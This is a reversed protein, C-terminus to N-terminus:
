SYGWQTLLPVTLMKLLGKLNPIFTRRLSSVSKDRGCRRQPDVGEEKGTTPTSLQIWHFNTNSDPADVERWRWGSSNQGKPSKWFGRFHLFLPDPIGPLSLFFPPGLPPGQVEPGLGPVVVGRVQVCSETLYVQGEGAKPSSSSAERLAQPGASAALLRGRAFSSSSGALLPFGPSGWRCQRVLGLSRWSSLTM